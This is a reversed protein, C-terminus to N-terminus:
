NSKKALELARELNRLRYEAGYVGVPYWFITSNNDEVIERTLALEPLNDITTDHKSGFYFCFGTGTYPICHGKKVVEKYDKIAKNYLHIRFRQKPCRKTKKLVIIILETLVIALIINIILM